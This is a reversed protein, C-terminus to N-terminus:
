MIPPRDSVASGCIYSELDHILAQQESIQAKVVDGVSIMGVVREAEVVPLHRVRQETMIRMCREIGDQTRVSTVPATMVDAVRTANASRQDLMVRRVCDRESLIGVLREDRTVVVAGVNHAALLSIAEYVRADPAISWVGWGKRDLLQQVTQM